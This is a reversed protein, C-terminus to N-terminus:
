SIARLKCVLEQGPLTRSDSFAISRATTASGVEITSGSDSLSAVAWASDIVASSLFVIAVAPPSIVSMMRTVLAHVHPHFNARDGFTQVVSVVGPRFGEEEGVAATLLEKATQAALRALAGLLERHHLFYIRLMKPVTFVWQAHGVDEV